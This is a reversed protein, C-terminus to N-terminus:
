KVVTRTCTPPRQQLRPGGDSSRLRHRDILLVQPSVKHKNGFEVNCIATVKKEEESEHRAGMTRSRQLFPLLYFEEAVQNPLASVRQTPTLLRCKNSTARSSSSQRRAITGNTVLLRSDRIMMPTVM